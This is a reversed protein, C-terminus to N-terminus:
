LFIISCDFKPSELGPRWLHWSNIQHSEELLRNDEQSLIMIGLAPVYWNIRSHSSRENMFTAPQTNPCQDPPM